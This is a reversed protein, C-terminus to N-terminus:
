FTSTTVAAKVADSNKNIDTTTVYVKTAQSAANLDIATQDSLRTEYADPSLQTIINPSVSSGAADATTSENANKIKMINATGTAIVAASNIAGVIPGAIPGLQMATSIATVVGSLMNIVAETVKMARSAKLMKKGEETMDGNADKYKEAAEEFVDGLAGMLNATAAMSESQIKQAQEAMAARKQYELAMMDTKAQEMEASVDYGMEEMMRLEVQYKSMAELRLDLGAMMNSFDDTQDWNFFIGAISKSRDSSEAQSILQDIETNTDTLTARFMAVMKASEEKMIEAVEMNKLATLKVIRDKMWQESFVPQQLGRVEIANVEEYIRKTQEILADYEDAVAIHKPTGLGLMENIEDVTPKIGKKFDSVISEINTFYAATTATIDAENTGTGISGILDIYADEEAKLDAKLTEIPSMLSRRYGAARKIMDDSRKKIDAEAKAADAEAQKKANAAASAAADQRRKNERIEVLTLNQEAKTIAAIAEAQDDLLKQQQEQLAKMEKKHHNYWTESNHLEIIQAQVKKILAKTEYFTAKANELRQKACEISGAGAAEMMQVDFDMADSHKKIAATNAEFTAEITKLKANTGLIASSLDDWHAVLEGLAIVLVGIGTSAIAAKIGSLSLKFGKAGVSAAKFSAVLGKVSKGMGELGKLGQVLAMTQQMKLMAKQTDETSVGLMSEVATLAGFGAVVQSTVTQMNSFITGLDGASNKLLYQQDSVEHMKQALETFVKNYEESGEPLKDLEKKLAKVEQRLGMVQPAVTDANTAIKIEIQEAM